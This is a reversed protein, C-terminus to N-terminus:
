PLGSDDSFGTMLNKLSGNLGHVNWGVKRDFIGLKHLLDDLGVRQANQHSHGGFAQVGIVNREFQISGTTYERRVHRPGIGYPLLAAIPYVCQHNKAAFFAVYGWVPIGAFVFEM